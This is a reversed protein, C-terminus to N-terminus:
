QASFTGFLQFETRLSKLNSQYNYIYISYLPVRGEGSSTSTIGVTEMPFTGWDEISKKIELTGDTSRPRNTLLWVVATAPISWKPTDPLIMHEANSNHFTGLKFMHIIWCLHGTRGTQSVYWQILQYKQSLATFRCINSLKEFPNIIHANM